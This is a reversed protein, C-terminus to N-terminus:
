ASSTFWAKAAKHHIDADRTRGTELQLCGQAVAAAALKALACSVFIAHAVVISMLEQVPLLDQEVYTVSFLVSLTIKRIEFLSNKLHKKPTAFM